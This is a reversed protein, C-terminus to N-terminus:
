ACAVRCIGCLTHRNLRWLRLRLLPGVAPVAAIAACTCTPCTVQRLALLGGRPVLLGTPPLPLRWWWRWPPLLCVPVPVSRRHLRWLLLLWLLLWPPPLLMDVLPLQRWLRVSVM